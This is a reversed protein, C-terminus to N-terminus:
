RRTRRLKGIRNLRMTSFEVYSERVQIMIPKPPILIGGLTLFHSLIMTMM